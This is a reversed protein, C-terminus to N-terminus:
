PRSTEASPRAGASTGPAAFYDRLLRREQASRQQAGDQGLDGGGNRRQGASLLDGARARPPSQRTMTQVAGPNITGTLRDEMPVALLMGSLGRTRKIGSEEGGPPGNRSQGQGSGRGPQSQQGNGNQSQNRNGQRQGGDENPKRAATGGASPTPAAAARSSSSPQPQRGNNGPPTDGSRPDANGTAIDGRAHATVAADAQAASSGNARGNARSANVRGDAAATGSPGSAALNGRSSPM